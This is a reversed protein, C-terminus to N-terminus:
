ISMFPGNYEFCLKSRNNWNDVVIIVNELQRGATQLVGTGPHLVSNQQFASNGNHFNFTHIKVLIYVSSVLPSYLNPDPM